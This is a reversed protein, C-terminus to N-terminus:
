PSEFTHVIKYLDRCIRNCKPIQLSFLYQNIFCSKIVKYIIGRDSFCSNQSFCISFCADPGMRPRRGRKGTAPAGVRLHRFWIANGTLVPNEYEEIVSVLYNPANQPMTSRCPVSGPLFFTQMPSLPQQEQLLMACTTSCPCYKRKRVFSIWELPRTPFKSNGSVSDKSISTFTVRVRLLKLFIGIGGPVQLRKM